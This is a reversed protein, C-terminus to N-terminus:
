VGGAQHEPTDEPNLMPSGDNLRRDKKPEAPTGICVKWAPLDKFVSSRAGVVTGDGITVGPAVFVDAAIWAQKGIAIPKPILPFAPDTEDHTAGCLHAYQSITTNEGITVGGVNYCDVFDALTAHDGMTLRWPAWIRAAPYIRSKWTIDAGFLKLLACRWVHLPRPSLRFLTAQVLGWLSRALRNGVSHPADRPTTQQNTRTFDAM